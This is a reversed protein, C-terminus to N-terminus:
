KVDKVDPDLPVPEVYYDNVIQRHYYGEGYGEAYPQWGDETIPQFYDKTKEVAFEKAKELSSFIGFIDPAGEDHGQYLLWYNM